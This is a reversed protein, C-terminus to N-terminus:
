FICDRKDYSYLPMNGRLEMPGNGQDTYEDIPKVEGNNLRGCDFVM